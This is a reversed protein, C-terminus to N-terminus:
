EAVGVTLIVSVIKRDRKVSLVVKRGPKLERVAAQYERVNRVWQEDIALVLDDKKLGAKSAPSDPLVRDIYAPARRGALALVRIGLEPDGKPAVTEEGNDAVVTRGEVFAALLDAPVAYNLRTNTAEAELVKGILGVFNGEIDVLAGGSAGPNSTIADILLVDGEVDFDAARKKTDLEARLSVIGLNASLPEAGEAVKFANSVAVVWDGPAAEIDERVEFYDPTPTDIKLLAVQLGDHRRIVDAYHLSGDPLV